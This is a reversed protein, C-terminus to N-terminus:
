SKIGTIHLSDPIFPIGKYGKIIRKINKINYSLLMKRLLGYSFGCKHYNGEYDQGGYINVINNWTPFLFFLFSRARLDPCCIEIVGGKKLIRVWGAVVQDVEKHSFHEITHSSFVHDFSKDRFPLCRADAVIDVLSATRFDLGIFGPQKNEGCGIDIGTIFNQASMM